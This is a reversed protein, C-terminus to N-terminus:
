EISKQFPLWDDMSKKFKVRNIIIFKSRFFDFYLVSRKDWSYVTYNQNYRQISLLSLGQVYYIHNTVFKDGGFTKNRIKTSGPMCVGFDNYYTKLSELNEVTLFASKIIKKCNMCKNNLCTCEMAVDVISNYVSVINKKYSDIIKVDNNNHDNCWRMVANKKTKHRSQFECKKELVYRYM